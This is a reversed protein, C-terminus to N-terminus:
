KITANLKPRGRTAKIKPGVVMETNNKADKEIVVKEIIEKEQTEELEGKGKCTECSHYMYGDGIYTKSGHCKPCTTKM